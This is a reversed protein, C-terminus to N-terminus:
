QGKDHNETSFDVSHILFYIHFHPVREGLEHWGSPLFCGRKGDKYGVTGNTLVVLTPFKGEQTASFGSHEALQTQQCFQSTVLTPLLHVKQLDSDHSISVNLCLLFLRLFTEVNLLWFLRDVSKLKWLCGDLSLKQARIECSKM